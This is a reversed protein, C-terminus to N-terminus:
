LRTVEDPLPFLSVERQGSMNEDRPAEIIKPAKEGADTMRKILRQRLDATVEAYADGGILNTLEWPDALLDYLFEETYTDACSALVPQGDDGTELSRVSYKWRHTRIARGTQAESMQVFMDDRWEKSTRQVLPLISRGEMEDPVDIGAADLLTAPLDILSVLEKLEGGGTFGPGSIAAPTRISSEHCSRKYESNRTKFHNGHDSTFLIVTNDLQGVSRLSDILRGLAEDLRKIMGCYGPWHQPSSGGLAQLDPPRPADAYDGEYGTPAPYDDRHNQHHPEIYSVFLFFPDPKKSRQDIHRIAADTLADVRYGPFVHEQNNEDWLHTEFADSTFELMNSALWSQYGGRQDKTVPGQRVPSIHWKGYYATHYGAENFHDAITRIGKKM